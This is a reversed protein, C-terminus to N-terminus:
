DCVIILSPLDNFNWDDDPNLGHSLSGAIHIQKYSEESEDISTASLETGRKKIRDRKANKKNQKTPKVEPLYM